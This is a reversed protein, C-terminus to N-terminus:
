TPNKTSLAANRCTEDAHKAKMQSANWRSSWVDDDDDDDDLAPVIPWKTAETATTEPGV